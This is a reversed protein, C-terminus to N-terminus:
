VCVAANKVLLVCAFVYVGYFCLGFAKIVFDAARPYRNAAFEASPAGGATYLIKLAARATRPWTWCGAVRLAPQGVGKKGVLEDWGGDQATRGHAHLLDAVSWRGALQREDTYKRSERYVRGCRWAM